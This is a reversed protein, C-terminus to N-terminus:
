DRSCPAQSGWQMAVLADSDMLFHDVVIFLYSDM